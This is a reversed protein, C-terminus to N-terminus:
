RGNRYRNLLQNEVMYGLRNAQEFLEKRKEPNKCAVWYKSWRLFQREIYTREDKKRPPIDDLYM